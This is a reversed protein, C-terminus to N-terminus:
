SLENLVIEWLTTWPIIDISEPQMPMTKLKKFDAKSAQVIAAKDFFFVPVRLLMRIFVQERSDKICYRQYAKEISDKNDILRGKDEQTGLILKLILINIFNGSKDKNFIPIDNIIKSLRFRKANQIWGANSLIQFFGKVINWQEKLPKDIQDKRDAEILYSYAEQYEQAHILNITQFYIIVSLNYKKGVIRKRIKTMVESAQAHQGLLILALMMLSYFHQTKNPNRKKFLTIASECHDIAKQYHVDLYAKTILMPFVYLSINVNELEILHEYATCYDSLRKRIEESPKRTRNLHYTLQIYGDKAKEAFDRIARANVLEQYIKLGEKEDQKISFYYNHLVELFQCYLHNEDKKKAYRRGKWVDSIVSDLRDSSQAILVKDLLKWYSKLKLDSLVM